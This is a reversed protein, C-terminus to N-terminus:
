VILKVVKSNANLNNNKYSINLRTSFVSADYLEDFQHIVKGDDRVVGYSKNHIIKLESKKNGSNFKQKLKNKLLNLM